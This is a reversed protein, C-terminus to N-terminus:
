TKDTQSGSRETAEHTQILEQVAEILTQVADQLLIWYVLHLEYYNIFSVQSQEHDDTAECEDDCDVIIFTGDPM